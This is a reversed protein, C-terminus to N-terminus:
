RHLCRMSMPPEKLIPTSVNGIRRLNRPTKACVTQRDGCSIPRVDFLVLFQLDFLQNIRQFQNIRVNRHMGTINANIDYKTTNEHSASYIRATAM